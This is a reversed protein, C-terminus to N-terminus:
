YSQKEGIHNFVGFEGFCAPWLIDPGQKYRYQYAFALETEGPMLGEPYPGYANMFREHRLSPHGTFVYPDADRDLRWMVRGNLGIVQGRMNLNLYGMRVMGIDENEMLMAAYPYLDLKEKLEWDDEVWLTLKGQNSVAQYARNANAGYTGFSITHWGILNVDTFRSLVSDIHDPKSGDDAVYFNLHPYILNNILADATRVAYSTRAYTLLIVNIPETM